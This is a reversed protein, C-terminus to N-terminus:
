QVGESKTASEETPILSMIPEMPAPVTRSLHLNVRNMVADPTTQTMAQEGTAQMPKNETIFYPIFLAVVAVAVVAWRWGSVRIVGNSVHSIEPSYM